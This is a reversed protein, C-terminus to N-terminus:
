IANLAHLRSVDAYICPLDVAAVRGDIQREKFSAHSIGAAALLQKLLERMRVPQGSGVNYVSGSEGREAILMILRAAEDISIYDRESDLNGFVLHEIEGRKFCEIQREASGIFLRESLGTGYVNFLRAIVVDVGRAAAYFTGIQTQMAKTLGYVSVPRLAHTEPVPNEDPMIMGYEAASGVLVLRADDNNELLTEAIWGASLANVAVDGALNNLFSGALHIVLRPRIRKVMIQVADHDSLDCRVYGDTKRDARGCTVLENRPDSAYRTIVSGAVGGTAGTILVRM